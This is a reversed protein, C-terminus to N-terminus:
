TRKKKKSNMIAKLKKVAHNLNDNVLSYNYFSHHAIEYRALKLRRKIEGESDLARKKLRNELAKLSPPLIFIYVGKPYVRKVKAAGQVDLSLLVDKGRLLMKKVFQRPTAYYQGFVNAWELFAKKRRLAFFRKKTIFFYDKKHKEGRRPRRTTVSVSRVLNPQSKLLKRCLTTKGCGSPASIIIILGQGKNM